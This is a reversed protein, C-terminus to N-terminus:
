SPRKMQVTRSRCSSMLTQTLKALSNREAKSLNDKEGKEFITLLFMPTAEDIYFTIARFKCNRRADAVGDVVILFTTKGFRPREDVPM